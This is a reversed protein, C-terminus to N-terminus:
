IKDNIEILKSIFKDRTEKGFPNEKQITEFLDDSDNELIEKMKFLYSYSLTKMESDKIEMENLARAIFHTIGQVIAMEKDHELPTKEIVTLKLKDNIFSIIKEFNNVRVPTVVIKLEKNGDKMSNPGFLPHTGVIQTEPPLYKKMLEIPKIKVSCVDFVISKKNIIKSNKILFNEIFQVPLSLIIIEKSLCEELDSFKIRTTNTFFKGPNSDYIFIKFHKKLVNAIIRGFNGYGIISIEKM